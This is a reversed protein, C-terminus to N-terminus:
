STRNLSVRGIRQNSLANETM